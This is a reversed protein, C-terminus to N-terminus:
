EYKCPLYKILYVMEEDVPIDIQIMLMNFYVGNISLFPLTDHISLM